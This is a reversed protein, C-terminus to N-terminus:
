DESKGGLMRISVSPAGEKRFRLIEPHSDSFSDLSKTDWTVRPKSWVAQLYQGKFSAGSVKVANKIAEELEAINTNVAEAKETFEDDIEQLKARIEPTLISDILQKKELQLADRQSQYQALQDLMKPIVTQLTPGTPNM